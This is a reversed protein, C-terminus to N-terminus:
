PSYTWSLRRRSAGRDPPNTSPSGRSVSHCRRDPSPHHLASSSLRRIFPLINLQRRIIRFLCRICETCERLDEEPIVHTCPLKALLQPSAILISDRRSPESKILHQHPPAPRDVEVTLALSPIKGSSHLRQRCVRSKSNVLIHERFRLTDRLPARYQIGEPVIMNERRHIDARVAIHQKNQSPRVKHASYFIRACEQM